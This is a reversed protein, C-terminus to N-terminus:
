CIIDPAYRAETTTHQRHMYQVKGKGKRQFAAKVTKPDLFGKITTNRVENANCAKDAVKIVEEGWCRKAHKRLNSM